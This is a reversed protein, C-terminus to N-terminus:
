TFKEPDVLSVNKVLPPMRSTVHWCSCLVFLAFFAPVYHTFRLKSDDLTLFRHCTSFSAVSVQGHVVITWKLSVDRAREVTILGHRNSLRANAAGDIDIGSM